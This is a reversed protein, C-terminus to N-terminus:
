GGGIMWLHRPEVLEREHRNTVEELALLRLLGVTVRGNCRTVEELALLRLLPAVPAARGLRAIATCHLPAASGRVAAPAIDTPRHLSSTCIHPSPTTASPDHNGSYLNPRAPLVVAQSTHLPLYHPLRACGHRARPCRCPVGIRPRHGLHQVTEVTDLGTPSIPIRTQQLDAACM